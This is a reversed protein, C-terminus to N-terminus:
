FFGGTLFHAVLWALFALLLFRRLRTWGSPQRTGGSFGMIAWFHESLTDGTSSNMLAMGEVIAFYLGWGLWAITWVTV